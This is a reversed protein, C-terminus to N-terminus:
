PETDPKVTITLPCLPPSPSELPSSTDLRFPPSTNQPVRLKSACIYEGVKALTRWVRLHYKDRM